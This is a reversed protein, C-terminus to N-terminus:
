QHLLPQAPRIVIAVTFTRPQPVANVQVIDRVTVREPVMATDTDFDTGIAMVTVSTAALEGGVVVFGSASVLRSLM